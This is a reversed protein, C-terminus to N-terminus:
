GSMFKNNKILKRCFNIRKKLNNSGKKKFPNQNTIAWTVYKLNFKKVAEKSIALHGHHPPDFSGVLVGIKIKKKLKNELKAM